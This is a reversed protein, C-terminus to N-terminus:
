FSFFGFKLYKNMMANHPSLSESIRLVIGHRNESVFSGTNEFKEPLIVLGSQKLWFYLEPEYEHKTM